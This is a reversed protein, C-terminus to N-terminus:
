CFLESKLDSVTRGPLRSALADVALVLVAWAGGCRPHSPWEAIPGSKGAQGDAVTGVRAAM